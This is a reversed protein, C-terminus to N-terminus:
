VQRARRFKNQKGSDIISGTNSLVEQVIRAVKLVFKKDVSQQGGVNGLSVVKIGNVDVFHSFPGLDGSAM